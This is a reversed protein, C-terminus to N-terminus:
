EIYGYFHAGYIREGGACLFGPIETSKIRRSRDRGRFQVSDCVFAADGAWFHRFNQGFSQSKSRFGGDWRGARRRRFGIRRRSFIKKKKNEKCFNSSFLRIKKQNM